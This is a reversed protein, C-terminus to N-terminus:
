HRSTILCTTSLEETVHEPTPAVMMEKKVAEYIRVYNVTDQIRDSHRAHSIDHKITVNVVFKNGVVKEETFCGHYAYFVMEELEITAIQNEM